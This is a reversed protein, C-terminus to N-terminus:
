SMLLQLRDLIGTTASNVSISFRIWTTLVDVVNLTATTANHDLVCPVVDDFNSGDLSQQMTCTVDANLDHYFFQITLTKAGNPIQINTTNRDGDDIGIACPVIRHALNM